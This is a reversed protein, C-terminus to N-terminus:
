ARTKSLSVLRSSPGSPPYRHHSSACAASSVLIERPMYAMTSLGAPGDCPKHEQIRLGSINLQAASFSEAPSHEATDIDSMSTPFWTLHQHAHRGLYMPCIRYRSVGAVTFDLPNRDIGYTQRQETNRRFIRGREISVNSPLRRRPHTGPVTTIKELLGGGGYRHM